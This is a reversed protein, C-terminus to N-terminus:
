IEVTTGAKATESSSFHEHLIRLQGADNLKFVQTGRGFPIQHEVPNGDRSKFHTGKFRFPYSAIAVNNVLQVDIDGLDMQITAKPDFFQRVRRAVTLRASESRPVISSFVTASPLYMEEFEAKSKNRFAKWFRDVESRVQDPLISQMKYPLIDGCM